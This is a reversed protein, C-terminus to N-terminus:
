PLYPRYIAELSFEDGLIIIKITRDESQQVSGVPLVPTFSSLVGYDWGVFEWGLHWQPATLTM